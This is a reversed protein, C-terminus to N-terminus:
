RSISRYIDAVMLRDGDWLIVDSIGDGTIDEMHMRTCFQVGACYVPDAKFRGLTDNEYVELTNDAWLVTLDPFGDNTVDRECSFRMRFTETDLPDIGHSSHITQDPGPGACGRSSFRYVTFQRESRRKLIYRPIQLVNFPFRYMVVDMRSDLNIDSFQVGSNYGEAALMCSPESPFVGNRNIYVAMESRKRVPPNQVTRISVVDPLTDGNMDYLFTEAKQSPNSMCEDPNYMGTHVTTDPKMGSAAAASTGEFDFFIHATEPYLLLLDSTGNGDADNVEIGPFCFQYSEGEGSYSYVTHRCQILAAARYEGSTDQSYMCLGEPTMSFIEPLMDHDTDIVHSVPFVGKMDPIFPNRCVITQVCAPSTGCASVRFIDISHTSFFIIEACGDNDIDRASYYVSAPNVQFKISAGNNWQPMCSSLFIQLSRSGPGNAGACAAIVDAASDGDIDSFSVANVCGAVNLRYVREHPDSSHVPKIICFCCFWVIIGATCRSSNSM